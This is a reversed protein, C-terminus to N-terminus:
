KKRGQAIKLLSFPRKAGKYKKLFFWIVLVAVIAIILWGAIRGTQSKETAKCSGMCCVGDKAYETDSDCKEGEGCIKGGLENCTKSITLEPLSEESPVFDKIFNLFLASYAYLEESKAVIQGEINKEESTSNIYILIGFNSNEKLEEISETSLSVYSSLNGSESVSISINELPEDGINYIYIVRTTNADTPMSVNLVSPEFRFNKGREMVEPSISVPIEYDLNETSLEIIRFVPEKINEIGFYIRRIEGSKLTITNENVSLTNESDNLIEIQITIGSDQLNQVEIFFDSSTVIFGPDISFDSLNYSISFNKVLNEESIEGGVRYRVNEVSLSYNDPNKGILSAYIYFDDNIRAVYPNLSVRVHGRYLFINEESPSEIFNGSIKAMLTEGRNLDSKMEFEVASIVQMILILFFISFLALCINKKMKGM